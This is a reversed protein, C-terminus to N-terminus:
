EIIFGNSCESRLIYGQYRSWKFNRELRREFSAGYRKFSLKHCVTIM